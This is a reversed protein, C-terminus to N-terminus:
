ESVEKPPEPLPMWYDNDYVKFIEDVNNRWWYENDLYLMSMIEIPKQARYVLVKQGLLPEDEDMNIWCATELVELTKCRQELAELANCRKELAEMSEQMIAIREELSEIYELADKTMATDCIQADTYPCDKCDSIICKEMRAKLAETNGIYM